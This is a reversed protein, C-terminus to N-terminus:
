ADQVTWNSPIGSGGTTWSTMSSAKVFTGSSAVNNVWNNTCNSASIDTALCKIYNLNTCGYFMSNYCREALTTAPLEPASTLSSCGSFMSSYCGNALTTAPLTSPASTLSTCGQFMGGYCDNALTTAPLEPAATLSTCGFFMYRYCENTSTTAPLEPATTLSTCERFMFMCCSNALTTASTGIKSPATALNICGRFMYTYCGDALTTAPLEPAIALSTCDSFMYSYCNAALTTAPLVLRKASKLGGCSYFLSSLAYGETLTVATTFGTSDILSMINGEANFYATGSFSNRSSNTSYAANDGRFWVTDGSEVSISPASAGTNSTIASWTEGFDLSYEITKTIEARSAVWYIEGDSQIKFTLPKEYVTKNFSVFGSAEDGTYSLWPEYYGNKRKDDYEEKRDFLFIYDKLNPMNKIYKVVIFLFVPLFFGGAKMIDNNIKEILRGPCDFKDKYKRFTEQYAVQQVGYIGTFDEIIVRDDKIVDKLILEDDNECIIINDFGLKFHYDLWENIYLNKNKAIAIIATKM